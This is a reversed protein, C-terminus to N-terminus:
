GSLILGAGLMEDLFGRVDAKCVDETVDFEACIAEVIQKETIPSEALEWIRVGSGKISHYENSDVNMMVYEGDMDTALINPNRHYLGSM